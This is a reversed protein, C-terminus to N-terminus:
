VSFYRAQPHHVVVAATSFEPELMASETATVGIEHAPLLDLIKRQEELEPCAPYGFSYRAGRYQMRFIAQRDKADQGAIGLESRMRAHLMEALAETTEAAIGQLYLMDQYRGADKLARIRDGVEHGATVVLLGLVDDEDERFFDAISRAGKEKRGRPFDFRARVNAAAGGAGPADLVLVSDGSRRCPFWGYAWRPALAGTKKAAEKQKEFLPFAEEREWREREDRSKTGRKMGWHNRIVVLPNIWSFVEDLPAPDKEVKAGFFPPRPPEVPEVPKLESVAAEKMIPAPRERERSATSVAEPDKGKALAEVLRLGEFADKAYFVRGKYLPRLDEEVYRRNLAAGGLIVDPKLGRRNLEELNEKMIVTSKVLLGSMGIAVAQHKGHAELMQDLGIKIGLNAVGYGNNSLIIEVLNKGIDHVDGKVTALICTGLQAGAKKPMRPELHKVAAKMVEASKLVFPLQMEGRGFLEGVTKMGDLLFENIITLPEHTELAKDLDAELGVPDGDVIRRALRKEVPLNSVPAATRPGKKKERKAFIALLDGLPDSAARENFVLRRCVERVEPEIQALPMIKSAHVIAADLGAEIAYHLFVSNLAVRAQPDIGFSVNSVGLITKVGPLERKIGRIAEITEIGARRTEEQGTVVPFTLADFILDTARLGHAVSLDHIRHAVELKWPTTTAQGKEDIMLAVCAAGFKRALEVKKILTKEGDELNISNLIPRGTIRKFSEELVSFETTDVVIPVESLGRLQPLFTAADKTEDRGVYALMVDLAHAGEAVQDRAMALMTNWDERGLAEKFKKSGTANLREGVIFPPPEQRLSMAGYLSAVSPEWRVTRPKPPRTGVAKVLEAIHEPGTGCCGGVLSVGFDRVFESVKAAFPVPELPFVTRGGRNEPLGANPLCSIPRASVQCLSRLHDAMPDPGTGCNLGVAWVEEYPEVTAYAALVDSGTLMKNIGAEITAQFIIPLRVGERAFVARAAVIAAKSNLLDNQTEIQLVDAGGRLLGLVQEEYTRELEEFTVTPPYLTAVKTTPGMSGSVFRPRGDRREFEAAVERANRASRENIEVIRDQLDFEALALNANFTNTEVVDAGADFYRRHIGQIEAPHSFNLSEPCDSVGWETMPIGLAFIQVGMSGDFFVVREKALALLRRSREPLTKDDADLPRRATPAQTM